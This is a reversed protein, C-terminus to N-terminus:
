AQTNSILFGYDNDLIAVDQVVTARCYSTKKDDKTWVDISPFGDMEFTYGFSHNDPSRDAGKAQNVYALVVNDGWMDTVVNADNVYYSPAVIVNPIGFIKSLDGETILAMINNPLLATVTPHRKILNFAILSLVLVNPLYGTAARIATMADDIDSIPTSNATDSWCTTTALAEKNAADYNSATTALTAALYERNVQLIEAVKMTARRRLNVIGSAAKEVRWDLPWCIDYEHLTFSDSDIQGPQLTNSNSYPARLLNNYIKLSEKSTFKPITIEETLVSVKPFLADAGNLTPATYDRMMKTLVKDQLSLFNKVNSVAM